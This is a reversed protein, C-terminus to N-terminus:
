TEEEEAPTARRVWGGLKELTRVRRPCSGLEVGQGGPYLCVRSGPEAKVTPAAFQASPHGWSGGTGSAMALPQQPDPNGQRRGAVGFDGGVCARTGGRPELQRPSKALTAM